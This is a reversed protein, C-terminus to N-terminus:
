EFVVLAVTGDSKACVTVMLWCSRDRTGASKVGNEHWSGLLWFGVWPVIFFFSNLLFLFYFFCYGDSGDM